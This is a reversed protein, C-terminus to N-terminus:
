LTFEAGVSFEAGSYLPGSPGSYEPASDTRLLNGELLGQPNCNQQSVCGAFLRLDLALSAGQGDGGVLFRQVDALTTTCGELLEATIGSYKTVYDIIENAPKM